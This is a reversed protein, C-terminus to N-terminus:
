CMVAVPAKVEVIEFKKENETEREFVRGDVLVIRQFEVPLKVEAL